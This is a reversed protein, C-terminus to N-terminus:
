TLQYEPTSMVLHLFDRLTADTIQPGNERLFALFKEREPGTIPANILRLAMADCLLAPDSRLAPPAIKALPVDVPGIDKRFGELTPAKGSVIYGALNYRFLLTASSIWARGTDWGKVNPPAFLIQGMQSLAAELASGAPLPAELVRGTQVIWQVPSKVQSRIVRSSYFEESLFIERLTSGINYGSQRFPAALNRIAAPSPSDSVFYVWLKKVIFEACEPQELIIGIVQDGDFPGRRGMFEKETDDFQRRQFVFQQTAPAVRYGTFARASEGIDKETYRQGEGLMFLEMLERAFNENPQKRQNKVTDLYRMMAPDKSIQLTLDRFSGLANARLTENQQWMGFTVKAKEFSTAFHGHWFLTMKERLPYPTYRMRNLWWVRLDRIQQGQERRHLAAIQKREIENAANKVARSQEVLKEPPTIEPLPFLDDDEAGMLVREVAKELGLSQLAAIEAPTGGFGARNLLHAAQVASWKSSPFRKLM